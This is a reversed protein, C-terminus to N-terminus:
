LSGGGGWEHHVFIGLGQEGAVVRGETEIYTPPSEAEKPTDRSPSNAEQSAGGERALSLEFGTTTQGACALLVGALCRRSVHGPGERPRGAASVHAPVLFRPQGRPIGVRVSKM